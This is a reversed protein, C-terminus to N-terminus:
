IGHFKELGAPPGSLKIKTIYRIFRKRKEGVVYDISVVQGTRLDKLSSLGSLGTENDTYFVLRRVDETAPHHFDVSVSSGDDAVSVVHATLTKMVPSEASFLPSQLALTLFIVFGIFTRTKFAM